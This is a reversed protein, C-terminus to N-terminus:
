VVAAHETNEEGALYERWEKSFALSRLDRMRDLYVVGNMHDYEHQVIRSELGTARFDVLDGHRDLGRVRVAPHRPVLGRLSPISTCGEWDYVLRGPQAVIMPNLVVKLPVPGGPLDPDETVEYVFIQLGVEIQPASLGVGRAGRMTVIMDDILGQIRESGIEKPPVAPAPTRLLPHGLRVIDLVAM